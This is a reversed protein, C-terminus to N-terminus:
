SPSVYAPLSLRKIMQFSSPWYTQIVCSVWFVSQKRPSYLVNKFALLTDSPFSSLVLSLRLLKRWGLIRGGLKRTGLSGFSVSMDITLINVAHYESLAFKAPPQWVLTITCTSTPVRRGVSLSLGISLIGDSWALGFYTSSEPSLLVHDYGSKDDILCNSFAWSASLAPYQM